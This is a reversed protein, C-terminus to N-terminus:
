FYKNSSLKNKHVIRSSIGTLKELKANAKKLLLMFIQKNIESKRNPESFHINLKNCAKQIIKRGFLFLGRYFYFIFSISSNM